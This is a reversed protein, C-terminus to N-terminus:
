DQLLPVDKESHQGQIEEDHREKVSKLRGAM